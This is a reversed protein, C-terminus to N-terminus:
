AVSLVSISGASPMAPLVHWDSRISLRGCSRARPSDSVRRPLAWSSPKVDTLRLTKVSSPRHPGSVNRGSPMVRTGTTQYASSTQDGDVFFRGILPQVEAARFFELTVAAGQVATVAEGIKVQRTGATYSDVPPTQVDTPGRLRWRRGSRGCSAVEPGRRM